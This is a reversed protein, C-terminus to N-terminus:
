KTTSKNNSLHFHLMNKEVLVSLKVWPSELVRSAGHKFANEVFPIMLLPTILKNNYDGTIDMQLSLHNGYRVKKLDLYSRIMSLEKGASSFIANCENVMYKLMDSLQLVLEGAKPSHDLTFSYINNLTNFLFHPHVQAKLLQVEAETNAKLLVQKELQKQYWTKFTKIAFFVIAAAAIGVTLSYKLLSLFNNLNYGASDNKSIIYLTLIDDLISILLISVIIGFIFLM